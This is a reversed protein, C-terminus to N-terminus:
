VSRPLDPWREHTKNTPNPEDLKPSSFGGDLGGLDAKPPLSGGSVIVPMPNTPKQTLGLPKSLHTPKQTKTSVRIDLTWIGRGKITVILNYFKVLFFFLYTHM